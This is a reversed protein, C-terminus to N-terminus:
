TLYKIDLIHMQINAADRGNIVGDGNTDGGKFANGSLLKIELIHM